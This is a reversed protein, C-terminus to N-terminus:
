DYEKRMRNGRKNEKKRTKEINSITKIYVRNLLM